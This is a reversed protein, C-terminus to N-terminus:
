EQLFCVSRNRPRHSNENAYQDPHSRTRGTRVTSIAPAPQGAVTPHAPKPAPLTAEMMLTAPAGGVNVASLFRPRTAGERRGALSRYIAIQRQEYHDLTFNDLVAARGARGMACAQDRHRFCWQLAEALADVNRAPLIFGTKGDTVCDEAGSKDTALVPLGTSMAELLVRGLGENVSPLVFVSSQRYQRRVESPPMFGLIKLSDSAYKRVITRMEPRVDGVLALEANRLQLRNWAELLYPVGKALEVRGVYVVRFMGPPEPAPTFFEHDVATLVVVAKHGCPFEEFGRRACSSQVIIADCIEYERLIRRVLLAPLVVDCDRPNVGFRACEALVERQWHLPHQVPNEIVTVAGQRKAAQLSALSAGTIGHFITSAPVYPAVLRDALWSSALQPLKSSGTGPLRRWSGWLLRNAIRYGDFCRIRQLSASSNPDLVELDAGFSFVRKLMGHQQLVRPLRAQYPSMGVSLTVSISDSEM